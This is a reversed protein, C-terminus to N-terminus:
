GNKRFHPQQLRAESLKWSWLPSGSNGFPRSFKASEMPKHRDWGWKSELYKLNRDHTVHNRRRLEPDSYITSSGWHPAEGHVMSTDVSVQNINGHLQVRRWFDVDEGYAPWVEEDLWGLKGFGHRTIGWSSFAWNASIFDTDPRIAFAIKELDGPSCQIDNGFIMLYEYKRRNFAFDICQNWGGACGVNEGNVQEQYDQVLPNRRIDHLSERGNNVVYLVGVPHDISDILRQLLDKRNVLVTALCPIM